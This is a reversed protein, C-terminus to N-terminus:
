LIAEKKASPANDLHFDDNWTKFSQVQRQCYSYERARCAFGNVTQCTIDKFSCICNYPFTLNLITEPKTPLQIRLKKITENYECFLPTMRTGTFLNKVFLKFEWVKHVPTFTWEKHLISIPHFESTRSVQESVSVKVSSMKLILGLLGLPSACLLLHSLHAHFELPSVFISCRFIQSNGWSITGEPLDALGWQICPIGCGVSMIVSHFTCFFFSYFFCVLLIQM